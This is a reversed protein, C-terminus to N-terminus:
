VGKDIKKALSVYTWNKHKLGKLKRMAQFRDKAEGGAVAEMISSYEKNNVRISQYGHRIKELIIYDQNDNYLKNRIRGEHEGTLRSADGISEYRTGKIECVVRYNEQSILPMGEIDVKYPHVNYVEEPSYSCILEKEKKLRAERNLWEAGICIVTAEFQSFGHLEWDKQLESCDSVKTLLNRSHKALRDLVNSSEGIYLKGNGKCRIQYLGPGLANFYNFSNSGEM